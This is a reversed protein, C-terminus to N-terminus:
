APVIMTRIEGRAPPNTIAAPADELTITRSVLPALNLRGSAILAAARGQTFPNLFSTMVDIERFLLDFPELQVRAGQPLVGLIVIRGGNRTLAPAAAVTDPVGACELVLDYGKPAAALAAEPTGAVRGGLAEALTQKEASRTLVTVDAGALRALQQCLLGIVGGGMVLVREGARPAGRDIGHLCCALPEAMAGHTPDLDAPLVFARHAPIAVREAFGGDRHIGIAVLRECLNVRGRACQECTGCAINPDCTIRDGVAIGGAGPGLATVTGCFEHGLTVPPTCPFEGRFLHRDTGCIGAAEVRVLVEGPGPVPPEVEVCGLNGTGFLRVAKM